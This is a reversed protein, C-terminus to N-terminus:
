ARKAEEVAQRILAEDVSEPPLGVAKILAQKVLVAAEARVKAGAEEEKAKAAQDAALLVAAGKKNAEILLDAETKKAKEETARMIKLADEEAQKHRARASDDAERLRTDAEEAKSLGEEIRARRKKMMEILPGYAFRRLVWLLVLFNVAQSLLLWPDIGLKHLLDSM